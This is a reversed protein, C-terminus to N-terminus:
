RNADVVAGSASALNVAGWSGSITNGTILVSGAGDLVDVGFRLNDAITNDRVTASAGDKIRVGVYNGTLGNGM